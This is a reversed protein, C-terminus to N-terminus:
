SEGGVLANMLARDTIIKWTGDMYQLRIELETEQCLADPHELVKTLAAAYVSDTVSPLLTGNEDYLDSPPQQASQEEFIEKALEAVADETRRLNLARFNVTQVADMGNISCDGMLSYQYTKKLADYLQRGEPTEPEQELGLTVYDSLCSYASPYNGIRISDFFWTVTETPDGEPQNYVSGFLGAYVCALVALAAFLATFFVWFLRIRGSM